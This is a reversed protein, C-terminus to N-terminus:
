QGHLAADIAQQFVSYPQAGEIASTQTQGNVSYTLVFFPTGQIGAARADKLDQNVQDLYKHSSYCSNFANIDLGVIQAIAQLRLDTFSGADEGLTNTFLADHMEWFKNQDAACYAAMAADQSEVSGQGINASVWNGASRYTYQVKGTKVYADIIQTETNAWFANCFTCQFDGFETMKVPANPSGMKNGSAQPHDRAPPPAVNSFQSQPTNGAQPTVLGVSISSFTKGIAPALLTLTLIVVIAICAILACGGGISLVIWKQNSTKNAAPQQIQNEMICKGKGTNYIFDARRVLFPKSLYPLFVKTWFSVFAPL